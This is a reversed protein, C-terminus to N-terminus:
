PVPYKDRLLVLVETFAVQAATLMANTIGGSPDITIYGGLRLEQKSNSTDDVYTVEVHAPGENAWYRETIQRDGITM